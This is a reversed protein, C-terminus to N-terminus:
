PLFVFTVEQLLQTGTDGQPGSVSLVEGQWQWLAEGHCIPCDKFPPVLEGLM